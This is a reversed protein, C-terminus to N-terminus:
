QCAACVQAAGRVYVARVSRAQFHVAAVDLRRGYGAYAGALNAPPRGPPRELRRSKGIRFGVCRHNGYVPTQRTGETLAIYFHCGRAFNLHCEETKQPQPLFHRIITTDILSRSNERSSTSESKSLPRM